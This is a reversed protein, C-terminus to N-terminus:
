MKRKDNSHPAEAGYWIGTMSWIEYLALWEATWPIITKALYMDSQWSQGYPDSPYYLCLSQDHYRHPANKDIDPSLVWVSPKKGIKYVLKVLYERSKDNPKLIGKWTSKGRSYTFDPFYTQIAYLQQGM